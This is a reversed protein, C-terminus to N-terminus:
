IVTQNFRKTFDIWLAGRRSYRKNYAKAYANLLNSLEQMVLKHFDGKFKPDRSLAIEDHTRLLFHIHNPM